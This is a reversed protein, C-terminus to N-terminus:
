KAPKIRVPKPSMKKRKPHKKQKKREHSVAKYETGRNRDRPKTKKREKQM